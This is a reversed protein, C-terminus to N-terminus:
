KQLWEPDRFTTNKLLKNSAMKTVFDDWLPCKKLFGSYICLNEIYKKAGIEGIKVWLSQFYCFDFKTLKYSECHDSFQIKHGIKISFNKKRLRKFM